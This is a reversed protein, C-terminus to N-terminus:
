KLLAEVVKEADEEKMKTGSTVTVAEFDDRDAREDLLLDTMLGSVINGIKAIGLKVM